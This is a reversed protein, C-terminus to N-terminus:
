VVMRSRLEDLLADNSIQEVLEEPVKTIIEYCIEQNSDEWIDSVWSKRKSIINVIDVKNNKVHLYLITENRENKVEIYMNGREHFECKM